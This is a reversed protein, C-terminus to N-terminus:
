IRFRMFFQVAIEVVNGM